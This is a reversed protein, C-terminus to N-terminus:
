VFKLKKMEAAVIQQADAVAERKRNERQQEEMVVNSFNLGVVQLIKDLPMGLDKLLKAKQMKVLDDMFGIMKDSRELQQEHHKSVTENM